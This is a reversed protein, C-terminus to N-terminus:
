YKRQEKQNVEKNNQYQTLAKLTLFKNEIRLTMMMNQEHELLNKM